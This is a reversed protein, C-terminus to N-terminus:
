APAPRRLLFLLGAALTLGLMALLTPWPTGDSLVASLSGAIAPVVSQAVGLVSTAAGVIAGHPQLALTTGNSIMLGFCFFFGGFGLLPVWPQQWGAAWALLSGGLIGLCLLLARRILMTLPVSRVLRANLLNGVASCVAIAAFVAGFGGASFGYGTMFIASANSLYVVLASLALTGIGGYVLSDRNRLVVGWARLVRSPRTALPDPLKLSEGVFLLALVLLMGGYAALFVFIWRWSSGALIVAGISPAVIPATIFAAMAFSMVRAMQPGQFLDRIIARGLVPGAGAGLGQVLRMALLSHADPAVVCALSSAIFLVIGVMMVPKRGFRDSASGYVAQGFAFGIFFIPVTLQVLSVPVGFEEATVPIAPLNIDITMASMTMLGAMLLVFAATGPAFTSSKAM